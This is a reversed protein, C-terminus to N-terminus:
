VWITCYFGYRSASFQLSIRWQLLKTVTAYEYIHRPVFDPFLRQLLPKGTATPSYQVIQTLLLAPIIQLFCARRLYDRHIIIFAHRYM